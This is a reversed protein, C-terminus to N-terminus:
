DNKIEKEETHCPYYNHIDDLAKFLCDIDKKTTYKTFSVRITNRIDNEKLGMAILVHSPNYGTIDDHEADCASGASVAIGYTALVSALNDTNCYESFNASIINLHDPIANLKGCKEM